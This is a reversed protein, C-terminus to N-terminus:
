WYGRPTSAQDVEVDGNEELFQCITGLSSDALLTLGPDVATFTLHVREAPMAPWVMLDVNCSHGGGVVRFKGSSPGIPQHDIRAAVKRLMGGIRAQLSFLGAITKLERFMFPAICYPPPVLEYSVEKFVYTVRLEIDHSETECPEFRLEDAGDRLSLVIFMLLMKRYTPLRPFRSFDAIDISQGEATRNALTADGNLVFTKMSWQDLDRNKPIPPINM